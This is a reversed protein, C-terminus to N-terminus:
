RGSGRGRSSALKAHEEGDHDADLPAADVVKYDKYEISLDARGGLRIWSETHNEAPLWFDGVKVYRHRIESKKIWFSPNKAPEAEIRTVAFDRADVWIKGRYLFKNNTKPAVELVYCAGQPTTEYGALTFRYNTSDLATRRRNEESAAEQEGELLKKFVHDIIFHSGSQSVISFTKTSPSHYDITVDMEADHSGLFGRYQMRYVRYGQFEHLASARERNKEELKQVIQQVTLAPKPAEPLPGAVQGGLWAAAVVVGTLCLLWSSVVRQMDREGRTTTNHLQFSNGDVPIPRQSRRERSAGVTQQVTARNKVQAYGSYVAEFVHDWSADLAQKRAALRMGELLRRESALIQVCGVFDHLDRAVFGTEGASVIFRPGGRDTVVAPVGSALAELVVNGYTDTLSPFVFVDMNAYARALAEGSLVGTYDASQLNTKLWAEEAGQGVILFRFNAIGARKLARELDALFRINKEVTLRGVYGIVFQTDSRDRRGPDFLITDVGRGMLFCAKGTGKELFDMLERNPAFLVQAIRYFRFIARLSSQRIAGGLYNRWGRPLFWFLGAGRQEAYEHLNTHWSAALPIRLRHAILAGLQGVDSPGTIHVIDPSFNRVADELNKYHRWFALDFDHKEDLPFGIRGRARELRTVSGEVEVRNASGGLVTLFPLGRRMAFQEFQRATNAVGDVERYADPFFAVRAVPEM